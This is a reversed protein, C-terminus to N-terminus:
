LVHRAKARKNIICIQIQFKHTWHIILQCLVRDFAELCIYLLNIGWCTSKFAKELWFLVFVGFSVYIYDQTFTMSKM